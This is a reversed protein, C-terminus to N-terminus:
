AGAQRALPPSGHRSPAPACEELSPIKSRRASWYEAATSVDALGKPTEATVWWRILHRIPTEEAHAYELALTTKGVGGMGRVSIIAAHKGAALQRILLAMAEDRTCDLLSIRKRNALFIPWDCIM